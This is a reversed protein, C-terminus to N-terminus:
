KVEVRYNYAVVGVTSGPMKRLYVFITGSGRDMPFSFAPKNPPQMMKRDDTANVIHRGLKRKKIEKSVYTDVRKDYSNGERLEKYTKM